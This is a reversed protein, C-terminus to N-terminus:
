GCGTEDGSRAQLEQASDRDRSSCATQDSASQEAAGAMASDVHDQKIKLEHEYQEPSKHSRQARLISNRRVFIADFMYMAGDIQRYGPDVFEYFVYGQDELYRFLDMMSTRGLPHDEAWTGVELIIMEVDKLNAAAGRLVQMEHGEVDLKLLYPKPPQVEAILGDLTITPVSRRQSDREKFKSHFGSGTVGNRVVMELTGPEDSAAAILYRAERRGECFKRMVPEMEAVPEIIIAHAEDFVDFLGDTGYAFGVDIITGPQFGIRKANALASRKTLREIKLAM